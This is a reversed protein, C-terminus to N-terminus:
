RNPSAPIANWWDPLTDPTFPSLDGDEEPPYQLEIHNGDPDYLNIQKIGIDKVVIVSYPVGIRRLKALMAPMDQGLFAFHEIQLREGDDCYDAPVEVLHVCPIDGMYMWAGKEFPPPFYPRFGQRLDIVETFFRISRELNNTRLNVHDLRLLLQKM